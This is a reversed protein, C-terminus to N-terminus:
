SGLWSSQAQFRRRLIHIGGRLEAVVVPLGILRFFAARQAELWTFVAGWSGFAAGSDSAYGLPTRLTRPGGRPGNM